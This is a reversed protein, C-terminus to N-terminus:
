SAPEVLKWATYYSQGIGGLAATWDTPKSTALFQRLENTGRGDSRTRALAIAAVRPVGFLRLAVAERTHVGYYVYSPVDQSYASLEDDSRRAMALTQLASLGWSVTPLISGFLRQCCHTLADTHSRPQGDSATSFHNDAIDGLQMGGVWDKVVRSLFDGQSETADLRDVLQERLEPIKLLVGIANRLTASRGSFLEDGLLQDGIGNDSMRSLTARVSEWSFGTSDVLSIQKGALQSAYARVSQVLADAWAPKSNRLEQFGLTGRLVQEVRISFEEAGVMRYTHTIFQVFSSWDGMFSLKALDLTPYKKLAEEVMSILVSNLDLTASTLYKRLAVEREDDHAALLIVGPQGQNIRGARGAINWFDETPMTVGYPYQYSGLVVNSIPFNIGQALTTTAVIHRLEGLEALAEIMLRVDDSLGAHHVAVGKKLLRALPYDRGYENTLLTGISEVLDNHM